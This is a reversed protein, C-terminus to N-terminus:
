KKEQEKKQPYRNDILTGLRQTEILMAMCCRVHGLHSFGSETDLDEGEQWKLLHRLAAGVLRTAEMGKCYNYRGYKQEGLMFGRAEVELASLPILSIDAKGADNKKGQVPETM